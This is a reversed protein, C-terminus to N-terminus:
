NEVDFLFNNPNQILKKRKYPPIFFYDWLINKKINSRLNLKKQKIDDNNTMLLLLGNNLFIIFIDKRGM